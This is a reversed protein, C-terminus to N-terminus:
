GRSPGGSGAVPSAGSAALERYAVAWPAGLIAFLCASLLAGVVAFVALWPALVPLWRDLSETFVAPAAGPAFVSSGMTAFVGAMLLGDFVAIIALMVVALLLVLGFLRWAQGRTFAWSEFLRFERAAFTMPAAMSFRLIIWGALVLYVLIGICAVLGIWADALQASKLGLVIGAAVAGVPIALGIFLLVGLIAMALFLLGLWLEQAGLRLYAFGRNQPELVARFVAAGLIARAAITSVLMIPQFLMMKSQMQMFGGNTMFNPQGGAAAGTAMAHFMGLMDPGLWLFMLASPGMALVLYLLSWALVSLPERGVLRFGASFADSISFTAM